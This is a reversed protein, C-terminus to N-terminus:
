PSATPTPTPSPGLNISTDDFTKLQITQSTSGPISLYTVTVTDGPQVLPLKPSLSLSATFIVHQGAIQIYYTPSSGTQVSSIRQVKGTVSKITGGSPTTAGCSNQISNTTLWQQYDNLATTLNPEFQVNGGNLERADLVGVDQFISNSSYIAVWTPISCISYLQYSDVSYRLINARTSAFTNQV